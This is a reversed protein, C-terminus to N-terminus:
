YSRWYSHLYKAGSYADLPLSVSFDSTKEYPTMSKSSMVPFFGTSGELAISSLKTSQTQVKEIAIWTQCFHKDKSNWGLKQFVQSSRTNNQALLYLIQTQTISLSSWKHSSWQVRAIVVLQDIWHQLIVVIMLLHLSHYSTSRGANAMRCSLAWFHALYWIVESGGPLKETIMVLVGTSKWHNNQLVPLAHMLLPHAVPHGSHPYLAQGSSLRRRTSHFSLSRHSNMYHLCSFTWAPPMLCDPTQLCHAHCMLCRIGLLLAM